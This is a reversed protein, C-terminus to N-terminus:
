FLGKKLDNVRSTEDLRIGVIQVAEPAMDHPFRIVGYTIIVPTAELIRPGL